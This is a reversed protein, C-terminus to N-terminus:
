LIGDMDDDAEVELYSPVSAKEDVEKSDSV